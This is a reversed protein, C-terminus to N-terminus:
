PLPDKPLVNQTLHNIGFSSCLAWFAFQKNKGLHTDSKKVYKKKQTKCPNKPPEHGFFTVGMHDPIVWNSAETEVVDNGGTTM